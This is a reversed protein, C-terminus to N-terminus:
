PTFRVKLTALGPRNVQITPLNRGSSFARLSASGGGPLQVTTVPGKATQVTTQSLGKFTQGFQRSAAQIGGSVERQILKSSQSVLRGSTELTKIGAPLARAAGRGFIRKVLAIVGRGLAAGGRVVVVGVSGVGELAIDLSSPCDERRPCQKLTALREDPGRLGPPEPVDNYLSLGPEQVPAWDKPDTRGRPPTGPNSSGSSRSIKVTESRVSVPGQPATVGLTVNTAAGLFAGGGNALFNGLASGASGLANGISAGISAGNQAIALAGYYGVVTGFYAGVALATQDQEDLQFGTPDVFNL